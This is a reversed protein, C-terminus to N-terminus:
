LNQSQLQLIQAQLWINSEAELPPDVRRTEREPTVSWSAEDEGRRNDSAEIAGLFESMLCTDPKALLTEKNM